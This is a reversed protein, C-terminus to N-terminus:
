DVFKSAFYFSAVRGHRIDIFFWPKLFNDTTAPLSRKGLGVKVWCSCPKERGWANWVFGHWSRGPPIRSGVGFGGDTRYYPTSFWISSVKGGDFGVQVEGGPLRYDLESRPKEGFAYERVVPAKKEGLFVDGIGRWPVLRPPDQINESITWRTYTTSGPGDSCAAIDGARGDRHRPFCADDRGFDPRLCSVASNATEAAVSCPGRGARKFRLGMRLKGAATWPQIYGDVLPYHHWRLPSAAHTGKLPQDLALVGDKDIRANEKMPPGTPEHHPPCWYAGATTLVCTWTGHPVGGADISVICQRKASLQLREREKAVPRRFAVNAPGSDEGVM